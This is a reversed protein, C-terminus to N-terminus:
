TAPAYERLFREVEEPMPGDMKDADAAMESALESLLAPTIERGREPDDRATLVLRLFEVADDWSRAEVSAPPRDLEDLREIRRHANRPLPADDTSMYKGRVERWCAACFGVTQPPESYTTV